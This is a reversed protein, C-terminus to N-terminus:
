PEFRDSYVLSREILEDVVVTPKEAEIAARDFQVGDTIEHQLVVTRRFDEALFGRLAVSFSDGFLVLGDALRPDDVAFAFHQFHPALPDAAYAPPAVLRARRPFDDVVIRDPLFSAIGALRVLDSDASLAVHQRIAAPDITDHVAADRVAAVIARYAIYAGADNWHTEGKSFVEGHASAAILPGRLDLARVGRARVLLILREGAPPTM